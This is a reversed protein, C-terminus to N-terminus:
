KFRLVLGGGAVINHQGGSIASTNYLPAGSYFDRIEARLGVFRWFRFDAGGGFDFAGRNISRSASNPLGDLRNTSQEFAAYGAGAVVYPAIGKGTLFKLRVGPTVFITAVDRTLTQDPSDIKRQPNALFHVEGYLAVKGRELLRYAYNAQLAVGPGLDLRTPGATRERSLLSGLTLGVEQRPAREDGQAFAAGAASSLFVLVALFIFIPTRM